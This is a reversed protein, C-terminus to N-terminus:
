LSLEMDRLFKEFAARATVCGADVHDCEAALAVFSGDSKGSLSRLGGFIKIKV